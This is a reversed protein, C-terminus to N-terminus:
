QAVFSIEHPATPREFYGFFELAKAPDGTVTIQAEKVAQPWTTKRSALDYFFGKTMGLTVDRKAPAVSHFQCVGRRIELAYEADIDSISFAVCLRTDLADEARLRTTMTRLILAPPFSKLVGPPAMLYQPAQSDPDKPDLEMASCLAWNRWTPNKQAYAWQRLVYAEMDRYEQDPDNAVRVMRALELAWRVEGGDLAKSVEAAVKHKGGMLAVLRTAVHKEPLPDLTMPDGAYWGVKGGAIDPVIHKIAGYFEGLWQHNALHPPLKMDRAIDHPRRGKNMQRITQDHMYQISDRYATVVEEIQERGILRRGHHPIVIEANFGDRIYDLSAVWQMPDRYPTGRITYVNPLVEGQITDGTLLVKDHPLWIGIHDDSEGPLPVLELEVGCITFATREAVTVTPPIFGRPGPNHPLGLGAHVFGEDNRPLAAGFQYSARRGMLPALYGAIGAIFGMLESHAYVQVEGREVAELSTFALVGNVHDNHFHTYIIAKVPLDTIKRFEALIEAANTEQAATDIIIIGDDGVIMSVNAINYGYATYVRAGSQWVQPSFRKTHELLEPHVKSSNSMLNAGEIDVM